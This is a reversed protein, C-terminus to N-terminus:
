VSGLSREAIAQRALAGPLGLWIHRQVSSEDLYIKNRGLAAM